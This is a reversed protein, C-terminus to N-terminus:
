FSESYDPLESSLVSLFTPVDDRIGDIKYTLKQVGSRALVARYEEENFPETLRSQLEHPIIADHFPVDKWVRSLEARSLVVAEILFHFMFYDLQVQTNRWYDQYATNIAAILPHGASAHMFWTALIRPNNPWRYVFFDRSEIWAPIEKDVLVTADIWTGGYKELLMLRLLNSFKTWGWFPIRDMVDGSIDLYDAINDQTLLIRKRERASLEVSRLCNKVLPPANDSGQAWFQWIPGIDGLGHKLPRLGRCHDIVSWREELNRESALHMMRAIAKRRLAWPLLRSRAVSALM